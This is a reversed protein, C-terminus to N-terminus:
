PISPSAIVVGSTDSNIAAAVAVTIPIIGAAPATGAFGGTGGGTYNAPSTPSTPTTQLNTFPSQLGSGGGPQGPQQGAPCDAEDLEEKTKALFNPPVLVIPLVDEVVDQAAVFGQRQMNDVLRTDTAEFAFATYGGPGAAVIGYVGPLVDEFEVRGDEDSVENGIRRGDKVLIVNHNAAKMVTQGDQSRAIVQALLKGDETLRIRYDHRLQTRYQMTEPDPVAVEDVDAGADDRLYFRGAAAAVSNGEPILPIEVEAQDDGVEAELDEPVVDVILPIVAIGNLSHAIVTYWGRAIGVVTPVGDPGTEITEEEQFENLVTLKVDSSTKLRLERSSLLVRPVIDQPIAVQEDQFFAAVPIRHPPTAHIATASFLVLLPFALFPIKNNM